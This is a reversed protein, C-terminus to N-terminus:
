HISTDLKRLADRVDIAGTRDIDERDYARGIANACKDAPKGARAARQNQVATLRSGTERLCNPDKHDADSAQAGIAAAGPELSQDVPASQASAASAFGGVLLVLLLKNM